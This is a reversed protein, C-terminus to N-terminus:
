GTGLERETGELYHARKSEDWQDDGKSIKWKKLRPKLDHTVRMHELWAATDGLVREYQVPEIQTDTRARWTDYFDAHYEPTAVLGKGYLPHYPAVKKFWVMSKVWDEVRKEILVVVDTDHALVLRDPHIHRSGPRMVCKFNDGILAGIWSTGSRPLGAIQFVKQSM